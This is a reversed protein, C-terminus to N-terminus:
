SGTLSASSAQPWLRAAGRVGSSDGWKAPSIRSSWRDSFIREEIVRPLRDYLEAVNSMGGGVVIVDPDLLNCVVAIARGLRDIYRDIAAVAGPEGARYRDVVEEATLGPAVQEAYDRQLGTGSVWTELCGHQGCWCRPGPQEDPAPWPLPTHGWEGAIGNHGEVLEGGVVLGGGCGTGAVVAFAVAAGAAAGDAAESLALCNADNALRVERGLAAALDDGFRRGNLYVSNANRMVGTAPSISGPCGIGVTGRAQAAQEVGAVLDHVVRVAADYSGPNPARIRALFAGSRDLAAAEIKTGGFDIGIQIM